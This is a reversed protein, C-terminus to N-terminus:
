SQPAFPLNLILPEFNWLGVDLNLNFSAFNNNNINQLNQYVDNPITIEIIYVFSKSNESYTEYSHFVGDNTASYYGSELVGTSTYYSYHLDFKLNNLEDQSFKGGVIKILFNQSNVYDAEWLSVSHGNWWLVQPIVLCSVCVVILLIIVFVLLFRIKRWMGVRELNGFHFIYKQNKGHQKHVDVCSLFPVYVKKNNESNEDIMFTSQVIENHNM